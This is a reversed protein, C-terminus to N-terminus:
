PGGLAIYSQPFHLIISILIICCLNFQPKEQVM